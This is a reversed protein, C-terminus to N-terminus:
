RPRHVIPLLPSLPDPIDTSGARYSSSSSTNSELELSLPTTKTAQLYLQFSFDLAVLLRGKWYSCCRPSPSPAVIKGLNSWRVRSRYRINSLIFCPPMLYWKKLWQYSEVQSQVWTKRVMLLCEVWQSILRNFFLQHGYDLTVLLYGKWYSSCRPTPSPAVGNGRNSWKVRSLVKCRQTNLLSTDLVM